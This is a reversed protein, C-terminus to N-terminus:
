TVPRRSAPRSDRRGRAAVPHGGVRPQDGAPHDPEDGDGRRRRDTQVEPDPTVAPASPDTTSPPPREGRRSCRDGPPPSRAGAAPRAAPARRRLGPHVLSAQIVLAHGVRTDVVTHSHGSILVSVAPDLRAAIDNIRDNVTGVPYTSQRGGEHIVAVFAHVGQHQLQASTSTSRTPRTSSTCGPRHRRHHRHDAHHHHHRRHVGGPRRRDEQDVYPQLLPKGTTDSIM